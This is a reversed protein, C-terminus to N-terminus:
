NNIALTGQSACMCVCICTMYLIDRKKNASSFLQQIYIHLGNLHPNHIFWRFWALALDRHQFDLVIHLHITLITYIRSINSLISLLKLQFHLKLKIICIDAYIRFGILSGSKCQKCGLSSLLSRLCNCLTQM